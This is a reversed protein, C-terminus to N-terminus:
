ARVGLCRIQRFDGVVILSVGGYLRSSIGGARGTALTWASLKAFSHASIMSMGDVALYRVNRWLHANEELLPHITSGEVLVAVHGILAITKLQNRIGLKEFLVALTTFIHTKGAGGMDSLHLLLQEADRRIAHEGVMRVARAQEPSGSVQQAVVDRLVNYKGALPIDLEEIVDSIRHLRNLCLVATKREAHNCNEVFEWETGLRCVSTLQRCGSWAKLRARESHSVETFSQVDAGITRVGSYVSMSSPEPLMKGPLFAPPNLQSCGGKAANAVTIGCADGDVGSAAKVLNTAALPAKCNVRISCNCTPCYM